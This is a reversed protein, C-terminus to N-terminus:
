GGLPGPWFRQAAWLVAAALLGAAIDDGIVGLAGARRDFWGVPGPKAIDFLRFLAFGALLGLPAPRALVSLALWQGAIEAIVVWGPDGIAGLAGLAGAGVLVALATALWLAPPGIMLLAAALVAAALSAVTGPAVPAYGLGAGSAVGRALRNM